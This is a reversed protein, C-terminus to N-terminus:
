SKELLSKLDLNKKYNMLQELVISQARKQASALPGSLGGMSKLTVPHIYHSINLHWGTVLM